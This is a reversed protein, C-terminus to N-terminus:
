RGLGKREAEYLYAMPHKKLVAQREKLYKNRVGLWGGIAAPVGGMAIVGELPLPVGFLRSAATGGVTLVTAIIEKSFAVDKKGFGLEQRLDRLDATMDDEFQRKIEHADAKTAKENALRSVYTELHEAYRHRLDRLSHSSDVSERVRFDILSAISVNSTDIVKLGIPVLQEHALARRVASLREGNGLLGAVTAYADGRDTMRSRTTGACCDALISMVALGAFQNLPYDSDPQLKGALRAKHLLEWSKPLLKEPYMQYVDSPLGRRRLLFKPPLPKEVLEEIRKHAEEKEDDAPPHAEGILEMARAIDSNAYNPRFYRDPVIYELKDWLLL